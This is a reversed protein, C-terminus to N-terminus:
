DPSRKSAVDAIQVDLGFFHYVSLPVEMRKLITDSAILAVLGKSLTKVVHLVDRKTRRRLFKSEATELLLLICITLVLIIARIPDGNRSANAKKTTKLADEVLDPHVFGSLLPYLGYYLPEDLPFDSVDLIERNSIVIRYEKGSQPDICISYDPQGNKKMKTKYAGVKHVVMAEFREASAPDLRLLKMRLYAEYVARAISLCDDDYRTAYMERITRLSRLSRNILLYRFYSATGKFGKPDTLAFGLAIIAHDLQEVLTKYHEYEKDSLYTFVHFPDAGAEKLAFYEDIADTWEEYENEPMLKRSHRGVIFGSRRWAFILEEQVGAARAATSAHGWYDDEGSLHHEFVVPDSPRPQRGFMKRFRLSTDELLPKLRPHLELRKHINGRGDVEFRFSKRKCCQGYPLASGCPCPENVPYPSYKSKPKSQRASM